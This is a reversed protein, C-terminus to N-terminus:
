YEGIIIKIKRKIYTYNCVYVCVWVCVYIYM